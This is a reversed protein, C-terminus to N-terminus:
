ECKDVGIQLLKINKELYEDIAKNVLWNRSRETKDALKDLLEVTENNVAISFKKVAM